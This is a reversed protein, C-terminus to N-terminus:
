KKDRPPYYQHIKIRWYKWVWERVGRFTMIDIDRIRKLVRRIKNIDKIKLSEFAKQNNRKYFSIMIDSLEKYNAKDAVEALKWPPLGDILLEYGANDLEPFMELCRGANVTLLFKAISAPYTGRAAGFLQIADNVSIMRLLEYTNVMSLSFFLNFRNILKLDKFFDGRQDMNMSEYFDNCYGNNGSKFLALFLAVHGRRDSTTILVRRGDADLSRYLSLRGSHYISHFMNDRGAQSLGIFLAAREKTKLAWFVALRDKDTLRGWAREFEWGKKVAIFCNISAIRNDANFLIKKIRLAIPAIQKGTLGKEELISVSNRVSPNEHYIRKLEEIDVRGTLATVVRRDKAINPGLVEAVGKNHGFILRHPINAKIASM